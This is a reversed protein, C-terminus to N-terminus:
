CTVFVIEYFDSLQLSPLPIYLVCVLISEMVAGERGGERGGEREGKRGGEEGKGM